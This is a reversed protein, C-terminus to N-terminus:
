DDDDESDDEDSWILVGANQHSNPWRTIQFQQPPTTSQSDSGTTSTPSPVVSVAQSGEEFLRSKERMVKMIGDKEEKSRALSLKAMLAKSESIHEELRKHKAALEELRVNSSSTTPKVASLATPAPVPKSKITEITQTIFSVAMDELSFSHSSMSVTASSSTAQQISNQQPQQQPPPPPPPPLPPAAATIAPVASTTQATPASAEVKARSRAKQSQLVLKRLRDEMAQKEGLDMAPSPAVAIGPPQSMTAPPTVDGSKVGSKATTAALELKSKAIKEELEKQRAILARKTFSPQTPANKMAKPESPIPTTSSTSSSGSSRVPTPTPSALSAIAQGSLEQAVFVQPVKPQPAAIPLPPLQAASPLNQIHPQSGSGHLSSPPPPLPPPPQKPPPPRSAYGTVMPGPRPPLSSHLPLRTPQSPPPPPPPAARTAVIPKEEVDVDMDEEFDSLDDAQGATSAVRPVSASGASSAISHHDDNDAPEAQRLSAEYAAKLISATSSPNPISMPPAPHWASPYSPALSPYALPVPPVFLPNLPQVLGNSPLSPMNPIFLPPLTPLPFTQQPRAAANMAEQYQQKQNQLPASPQHRQQPQQPLHDQFEAERMMRKEEREKALRAKREKKTEKKPLTEAEKEAADGEIEGEEIEGVGAGAGVGDVRYWWVKILDERPKGKLKSEGMSRALEATAFEILAKGAPADIFIHVPLFACASRSWNNIFDPHRHTKPLQEMVLTRAPNPIYQSNRKKMDTGAEKTSSTINFTGHKSNPDQDPMMGIPTVPPPPPKPPLGHIIQPPLPPPSPIASPPNPQIAPLQPTSLPLVATSLPSWSALEEGPDDGAAMAMSSVWDLPKSTSPPPLPPPSISPPQYNDYMTVEGAGYRYPYHSTSTSSFSAVGSMHPPASQEFAPVNWNINKLRAEEQAQREARRRRKRAKKSEPVSLRNVLSPHPQRGNSPGAVPTDQSTLSNTRKRKKDASVQYIDNLVTIPPLSPLRRRDDSVPSSPSSDKSLEYFVEEESDDDIAIPSSQTGAGAFPM